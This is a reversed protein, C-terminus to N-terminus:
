RSLIQIFPFNKGLDRFTMSSELLGYQHSYLFGLHYSALSLGHLSGIAKAGNPHGM